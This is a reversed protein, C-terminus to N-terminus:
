GNRSTAGTTETVTTQRLDLRWCDGASFKWRLMAEAASVSSGALLCILGCLLWLNMVRGLQNSTTHVDRWHRELYPNM